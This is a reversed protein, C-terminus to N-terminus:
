EIVFPNNASGDGSKYDVTSSLYVSPKLGGTSTNAFNISVTGDNYIRIPNGAYDSSPSVAWYWSSDLLWNASKCIENRYDTDYPTSAISDYGKKNDDNYCSSSAYMYDSPYILAVKGDWTQRNGVHVGTSREQVYIEKTNGYGNNWVVNGLYWKTSSIQNKAETTLGVNTYDCVATTNITTDYGISCALQTYGSARNYYPGTNLMTMLTATTWDNKFSEEGKYDWTTTGIKERIIKVKYEKTYTGIENLTEVEFVGIIRWVGTEGNFTIYNNPTKGQYRYESTAYNQNGTASQEIKTLGLSQYNNILYQALTEEKEKFYLSCKAQKDSIITVARNSSDYTVKADNTCTYSNLTYRKSSDLEDVRTNDVYLATTEYDYHLYNTDIETYTDLAKVEDVDNFSYGGFVMLSLTQKETSTNKITLSITRKTLIGGLSPELYDSAYRVELNTNNLYALKYNTSIANLSTIEVTHETEGPDIVITYTNENDIKISYLLESIYMENSRYSESNITFKAYSLALVPCLGILVLVIFINKKIYYIINERVSM